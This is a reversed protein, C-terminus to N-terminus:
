TLPLSCVKQQRALEQRMKSEHADAYLREHVPDTAEMQAAKVTIAPRFTVTREESRVQREPSLFSEYCAM